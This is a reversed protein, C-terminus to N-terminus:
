CRQFFIQTAYRNTTNQIEIIELCCQIEDEQHTSNIVDGGEGLVTFKRHEGVPKFFTNVVKIYSNYSLDFLNLASFEKKTFDVQARNFVIKHERVNDELAKALNLNKIENGEVPKSPGIEMWKLGLEKGYLIYNCGVHPDVYGIKSKEKSGRRALDQGIQARVCFEEYVRSMDYPDGEGGAGTWWGCTLTKRKGSDPRLWYFQPDRYFKFSLLIVAMVGGGIFTITTPHYLGGSPGFCATGHHGLHEGMFEAYAFLSDHYVIRGFWTYPSQM